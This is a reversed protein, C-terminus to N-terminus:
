DSANLERSKDAHMDLIEEFYWVLARRTKKEPWDSMLARGEQAAGNMLATVVDSNGYRDGHTARWRALDALLERSRNEDAKQLPNDRQFVRYKPLEGTSIAHAAIRLQSPLSLPWLIASAVTASFLNWMQWRMENRAQPTDEKLDITINGDRFGSFLGIFGIVLMILGVFGYLVLGPHHAM